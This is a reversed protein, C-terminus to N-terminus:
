LRHEIVLSAVVILLRGVVVLSSVRSEAVLSFGACCHSGACGFIFLYIFVKLFLICYSNLPDLFLYPNPPFFFFTQITIHLIVTKFMNKFMMNVKYNEVDGFLSNGVVPIQIALYYFNPLFIFVPIKLKLNFFFCVAALAWYNVM